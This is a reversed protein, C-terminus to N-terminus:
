FACVDSQGCLDMQTLAKTKGTTMYPHSISWLPPQTGFLRHKQVTANSFVRLLGKSLLSILGSYEKSSSISFSFSQYGPCRVRLVSESSFVRISPFISPLLLHPCCLILYNSQMVSETSMLKLMSWSITFSLSAQHATTWLLVCSLLHIVLYINYILQLLSDSLVLIYYCSYQFILM